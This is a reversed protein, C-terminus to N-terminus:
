KKVKKKNTPKFDTGCMACNGAPHKYDEIRIDMVALDKVIQVAIYWAIRAQVAQPIDRVVRDERGGVSIWMRKRGIRLMIDQIREIADQTQSDQKAYIEHAADHRAVVEATFKEMAADALADLKAESLKKQPKPKKKM